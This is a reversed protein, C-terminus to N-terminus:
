EGVGLIINLAEADTIEDPGPEEPQNAAEIEALLTEYEEQTIEVVLPDAINPRFNNYTLLLVINKSEDLQKYYYVVNDDGKQQRVVVNRNVM